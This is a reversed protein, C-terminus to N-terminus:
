SRTGKACVLVATDPPQVAPSVHARIQECTDKYRFGAIINPQKNLVLILFWTFM